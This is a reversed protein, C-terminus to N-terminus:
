EMPITSSRYLTKSDYISTTFLGKVAIEAIEYQYLLSEISVICVSTNALFVPDVSVRIAMKVPFQGCFSYFPTSGLHM